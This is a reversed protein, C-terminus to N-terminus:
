PVRVTLLFVQSPPTPRVLFVDAEEVQSAITPNSLVDCLDTDWLAPAKNLASHLLAYSNSM